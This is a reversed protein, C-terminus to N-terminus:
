SFALRSKRREYQKMYTEFEELSLQNARRVDQEEIKDGYFNITPSYTINQTTNETEYNEEKTNYYKSESLRQSLSEFSDKKNYTSYSTNQQENGPMGEFMGMLQGTQYWLDAAQKTGNLPIISEPGKEAVWAIHEKDFIGGDAHFTTINERVIKEISEGKTKPTKDLIGMLKGTQYWLDAAQKTGNLPIISEPGEEAVWAIHAEDFIGGDAHFNNVSSQFKRQAAVGILSEPAIKSGSSTQYVPNMIIPIDVMVGKSFGDRIEESFVNVIASSANKVDENKKVIESVIGDCMEGTYGVMTGGHKELEKQTGQLMKTTSEKAKTNEKEIHTSLMNPIPYEDRAAKKVEEYVEKSQLVATQAKTLKAGADGAVVGFGATKDLLNLIEKELEEDTNKMFEEQVGELLPKMLQFAEGLGKRDAQSIDGVNMLKNLTEPNYMLEPNAGLKIQELSNVFSELASRDVAEMSEKLNPYQQQLTNLLFNITNADAELKKRANNQKAKEVEKKYELPSGGSKLKVDQVTLVNQLAEDAEIKSQESRELMTVILNQFSEASMDGTLYNMSLVEMEAKAKSQNLMETVANMKEQLVTIAEVEDFDLIGDKMAKTVTDALEKGYGELITQNKQFFEDISAKGESDEGMLFEYSLSIAYQQQSLLEQTDEIFSTINQQYASREEDTLKMGISVKWNARNLESVTEQISARIEKTNEMAKMSEEIKELDKGGVIHRAAEQLDELSLAIDGFHEALNQQRMKKDAKSVYTAIGVAGGIAAGVALIAAAFPNTLIGALGAFSKGVDMVGKAVKYTAIASGIGVLTSVVVDPNKVMWKAVSLFPKAFEKFSKGFSKVHRIAAPLNKKFSEAMNAIVNSNKLKQSLVSVMKTVWQVGGRLPGSIDEYIQIGLGELGSKLITVDGNLNDIRTEAMEKAAGDCNYIEETLKNFDEESSNIIALWGSMAEKGFITASAQTQEAQTLGELQRTGQYMAIINRKQEETMKSLEKKTYQKYLASNLQAEDYDKIADLGLGLATKHYIEEESLSSMAEQAMQATDMGTLMEMNQRKEEETMTGMKSRLQKMVEMLSKMEGNEKTISIGLRDMMAAQKDTPKAMNVIAARLQTGAQSAKIGSNAMLGIAIATDEASYGLSGAVPAVYKFTEGMMGVNTNSSSSAKALVDAFHGSDKASLGFATLADTVIDSVSALDEGSAAALNMIGDIGETMDKAKWGAMSMYEMAAGAETASFKTTSGMEKAKEKLSELDKGTAGSIAEVTSMQEEFSSGVKIAATAAGATATAAVTGAAAITKFAKKGVKEMGNFIGNVDSMGNSFNSATKALGQLEKKSM